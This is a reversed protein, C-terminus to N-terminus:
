PNQKSQRYVISRFHRKRVHAISIVSRPTRLHLLVELQERRSCMNPVERILAEGLSKLGLTRYINALGILMVKRRYELDTPTLPVLKPKGTSGSTVGVVIPKDHLLCNYDGEITRMILPELNAYSTIPFRSKFDKIRRIENAQHEQGYETREYLKILRNLVVEQYLRPRVTSDHWEKLLESGLEVLKRM